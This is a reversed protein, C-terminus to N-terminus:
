SDAERSCWIQFVWCFPKYNPSSTVSFIGQCDTHYIHIGNLARNGLSHCALMEIFYSYLNPTLWGLCEWNGFVLKMHLLMSLCLARRLIDFYLLLLVRWFADMFLYFQSAIHFKSFHHSVKTLKRRKMRTYTSPPSINYNGKRNTTNKFYVSSFTM